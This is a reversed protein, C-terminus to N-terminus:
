KGVLAGRQEVVPPGEAVKLDFRGTKVPAHRVIVGTRAQISTNRFQLNEIAKEPLGLILGVRDANTAQFGDVRVNRIYPTRNPLYRRAPDQEGPYLQQGLGPRLFSGSKGGRCTRHQQTM